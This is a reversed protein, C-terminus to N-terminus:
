RKRDLEKLAAKGGPVGAVRQREKRFGTQAAKMDKAYKSKLDKEMEADPKGLEKLKKDIAALREAIKRLKPRAAEASKQDRVDRLARTGDTLVDIVDQYAQEYDKRDAAGAAGALWLALAGVAIARKM